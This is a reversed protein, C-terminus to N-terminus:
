KRDIASSLWRITAANLERRNQATKNSPLEASVMEHRCIKKASELNVGAMKCNSFNKIM